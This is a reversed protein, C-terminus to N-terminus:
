LAAQRLEDALRLLYFQKIDRPLDKFGCSIRDVLKRGTEYSGLDRNGYVDKGHAYATDSLDKWFFNLSISPTLPNTAHLWLPPIFVVDGPEMTFELPHVLERAPNEEFVNGITSSSSGPPFLLHVVDQPPYMRVRKTGIIQCLINATVDYHLWMSTNPSSVRLPSSFHYDKLHRAFPPLQFDNALEPFDEEFMAPADKPKSASLARFYLHDQKDFVRDMFEGFLMTQYKFNKANFNLSGTDSAHVVVSRDAGVCSKLFEKDWKHTCAGLDTKTFLVPKGNDCIQKFEAATCTEKRQIETLVHLALSSNPFPTGSSPRQRKPKIAVTQPTQATSSVYVGNWYSGFSFCVAGGGYVIVHEDGVIDMNFGCLLPLKDPLGALVGVSVIFRPEFLVKV